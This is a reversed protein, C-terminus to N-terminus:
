ATLSEVTFSEGGFMPEINRHAARIHEYYVKHSLGLHQPKNKTPGPIVYHVFLVEYQRHTLRRLDLARRIAVAAELADGRFVEIDRRLGDRSAAGPGEEVLRGSVSQPWREPALLLKRKAYGWAKLKWNIWDIM